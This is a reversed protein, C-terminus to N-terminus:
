WDSINEDENEIEFDIDIIEGTIQALEKIEQIITPCVLDKSLELIEQDREAM